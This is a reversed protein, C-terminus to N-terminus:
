RSLTSNLQTNLHQSFSINSPQFGDPGTPGFTLLLEHTRTRNLNLIPTGAASISVLKLSPSLGVGSVVAFKLDYSYVDLKATNKASPKSSHLLDAAKVNDQLFRDIGLESNLLQPGGSRNIPWAEEDCFAKNKDKGAISGVQWYSYTTDTRTATSSLSPSLGLSFNQGISLGSEHGNPFTRNYAANPSLATSDALSLTLQLQVGYNDPIMPGFSTKTKNVERIAKITDCFINRKINLVMDDNVDRAQWGDTIQPPAFGCGSLGLGVITVSLSPLVIKM